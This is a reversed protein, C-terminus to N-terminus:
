EVVSIAYFELSVLDQIARIEMEMEADFEDDFFDAEAQEEDSDYGSDAEPYSPQIIPSGKQFSPIAVFDLLRRKKQMPEVGHSVQTEGAQAESSPEAFLPSDSSKANPAISHDASARMGPHRSVNVQNGSPLSPIAIFDMCTKRKKTLELGSPHEAQVPQQTMSVFPALDSGNGKATSM